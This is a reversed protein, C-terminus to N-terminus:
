RGSRARSSVLIGAVVLAFAIPHFWRIEEGLLPVALIAVFL